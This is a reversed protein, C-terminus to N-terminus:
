QWDYVELELNTSERESASSAAIVDLKICGIIDIDGAYALLQVSKKFITGNRYVGAKRLVSDMVFNFLACTLPNDQRFGRLLFPRNMGQWLHLFQEVNNQM